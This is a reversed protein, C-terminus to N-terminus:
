SQFCTKSNGEDNYIDHDKGYSDGLNGDLLMTSKKRAHASKKIVDVPHRRKWLEFRQFGAM